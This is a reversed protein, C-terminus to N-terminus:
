CWNQVTYRSKISRDRTEEELLHEVFLQEKPTNPGATLQFFQKLKKRKAKRKKQKATYKASIEKVVATHSAKHSPLARQFWLPITRLM